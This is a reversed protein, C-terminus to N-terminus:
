ALPPRLFVIAPYAAQPIEWLDERRTNMAELLCPQGTHCVSYQRLSASHGGLSPRLLSVAAAQSMRGRSWESQPFGGHQSSM